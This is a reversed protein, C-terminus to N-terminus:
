ITCSQYLLPQPSVVVHSYRNISHLGSQVKSGGSGAESHLVQRHLNSLEVVDYDLLGLVGVGAAALYLAAPCGLGGVGVVLVSSSKLQAQGSTPPFM